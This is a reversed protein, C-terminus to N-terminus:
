LNDFKDIYNNIEVTKSKTALIYRGNKKLSINFKFQTQKNDIQFESQYIEYFNRPLIFYITKETSSKCIFVINHYAKKPLGLFWRNPNRESAYAIGILGGSINRCLPGREETLIKGRKSAEKIFMMREHKGIQKPSKYIDRFEDNNDHSKKEFSSVATTIENYQRELQELRELDNVAMKLIDTRNNKLAAEIDNKKVKKLLLIRGVMDM